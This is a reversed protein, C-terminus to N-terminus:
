GTRRWIGSEALKRVTDDTKGEKKREKVITVYYMKTYLLNDINALRM